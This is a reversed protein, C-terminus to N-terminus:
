AYIGDFKLDFRLKEGPEDSRDINTEDLFNMPGTITKNNRKWPNNRTNMNKSRKVGLSRRATNYGNNGFMMGGNVFECRSRITGPRTRRTTKEGGSPNEETM